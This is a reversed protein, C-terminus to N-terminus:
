FSDEDRLRKAVLLQAVRGQLQQLDEVVILHLVAGNEEVDETVPAEHQVAVDYLQQLAVFLEARQADDAGHYVAGWTTPVDSPGEAGQRGGEPRLDARKYPVGEERKKRHANEEQPHRQVGQGLENVLVVVICHLVAGGAPRVEVQVGLRILHDPVTVNLAEHVSQLPLADRHVAEIKNGTVVDAMEPIERLLVCELAAAKQSSAHLVQSAQVFVCIVAFFVVRPFSNM